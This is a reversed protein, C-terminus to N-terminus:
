GKYELVHLGGNWDTVYMLGEPTVYADCTKAAFAINPRPDMMKQPLPPVWYAVEKPEFANTIDFVRVGANNYTAFIM